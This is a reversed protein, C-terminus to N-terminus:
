ADFGDVQFDLRMPEVAFTQERADGRIAGVDLAGSAVLDTLSAPDLRLSTTEFTFDPASALAIGADELRRRADPLIALLQHDTGQVRVASLVADAMEVRGTVGLSSEFSAVLDGGTRTADMTASVREPLDVQPAYGEVLTGPIDTLEFKAVLDADTRLLRDKDLLDASEAHVTMRFGDGVGKVDITTAGPAISASSGSLDLHVPPKGHDHWTIDLDDMRVVIDRPIKPPETVPPTEESAPPLIEVLNLRGAEDRRVHLSGALDVGIESGTLIGVLSATTVRVDGVPEAADVTLGVRTAGFWRLALRDITVDAQLADDLTRELPGRALAGAIRPLLAVVIALLVVVILLILKWRRM